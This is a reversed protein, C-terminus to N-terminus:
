SFTFSKRTENIRALLMQLNEVIKHGKDRNASTVSTVLDALRIDMM